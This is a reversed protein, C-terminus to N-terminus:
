KALSSLVDKMISIEAKWAERTTTLVEGHYRDCLAGFIANDNSKIFEDFHNNYLCRVM